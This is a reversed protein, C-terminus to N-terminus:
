NVVLESIFGQGAFDKSRVFVEKNVALNYQGVLTEYDSQTVPAEVVIYTFELGPVVARRFINNAEDPADEKYPQAYVDTITGINYGKEIDFVAAGTEVRQWFGEQREALEITYTATLGGPSAEAQKPAAFVSGAIVLAVVLLMILVDIPNFVGFLRYKKIPNKM